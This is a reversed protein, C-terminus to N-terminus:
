TVLGSSFYRKIMMKMEEDVMAMWILTVVIEGTEGMEQLRINMDFGPELEFHLDLVMKVHKFSM